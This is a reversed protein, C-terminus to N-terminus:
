SLGAKIADVFDFYYEAIEVDKDNGNIIQRANIPDDLVDNFYDSLCKGTFWGDEMGEFMIHAALDPELAMDPFQLLDEGVALGAREYNEYWTLQVYGRGIYPYYSKGQLYAQSGYETIPQMTFATEHHTTALCYAPHRPDSNLGRRMRWGRLIFNMGDVQGQSLVGNYLRKRVEDFFITSDFRTYTM